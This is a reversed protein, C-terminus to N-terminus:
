GDSPDRVDVALGLEYLSRLMDAMVESRPQGARPIAGAALAGVLKPGCSVTFPIGRTSRLTQERM